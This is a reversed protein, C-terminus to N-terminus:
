HAMSLVTHVEGPLDVLDCKRLQFLCDNLDDIMTDKTVHTQRLWSLLTWGSSSQRLQPTIMVLSM